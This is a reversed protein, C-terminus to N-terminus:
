EEDVRIVFKVRLELLRKCVKTKLKMDATLFLNSPAIIELAQGEKEIDLENLKELLERCLEDLDYSGTLYIKIKEQMM